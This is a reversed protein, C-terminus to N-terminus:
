CRLSLDKCQKDDEVDKWSLSAIIQHVFLIGSM